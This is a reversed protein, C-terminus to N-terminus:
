REPALRQRIRAANIQAAEKQSVGNRRFGKHVQHGSTAATTQNSRRAFDNGDGFHGNTQDIYSRGKGGRPPPAVKGDKIDQKLKQNAAIQDRILDSFTQQQPRCLQQWYFIASALDGRLNKLTEQAVVMEDRAKKLRLQASDHIARAEREGIEVQPAVEAADIPSQGEKIADPSAIKELTEPASGELPPKDQPAIDALMSDLEDADLAFDGPLQRAVLKMSATKGAAIVKNIAETLLRDREVNGTSYM